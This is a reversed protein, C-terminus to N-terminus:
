LEDEAEADAECWLALVAVGDMECTTVLEVGDAAWAVTEDERGFASVGLEGTM